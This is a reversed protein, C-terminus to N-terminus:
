AARERKSSVANALLKAPRLNSKEPACGSTEREKEDDVSLSEDALMGNAAILEETLADAHVVTM